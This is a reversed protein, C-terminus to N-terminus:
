IKNEKMQEKKPVYTHIHTGKILKLRAESTDFYPDYTRVDGRKARKYKNWFRINTQENTQKNTQKNTQQTEAKIILSAESREDLGM